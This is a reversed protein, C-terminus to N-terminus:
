TSGKRQIEALWHSTLAEAVLPPTYARLEARRPSEGMNNLRNWRRHAATGPRPPTLQNPFTTPLTLNELEWGTAKFAPHGFQWPQVVRRNRVRTGLAAMAYDHMVPNEIARFRAPVLRCLEYLKIGLHFDDTHEKSDFTYRRGARALRTCPPHAILLDPARIEGALVLALYTEAEMQRHYPLEIAQRGSPTERTALRRDVSETEVGNRRLAETFAGGIEFLVHARLPRLPLPLHPTHTLLPPPLPSPTPTAVRM